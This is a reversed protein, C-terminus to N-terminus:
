FPRDIGATISRHPSTMTDGCHSGPCDNKTPPSTNGTVARPALPAPLGSSSLLALLIALKCPQNTYPGKKTTTWVM